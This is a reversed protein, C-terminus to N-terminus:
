GRRLKKVEELRENEAAELTRKTCIALCKGNELFRSVYESINHEPVNTHYFFGKFAGRVFARNLRDKNTTKNEILLRLITNHYTEDRYDHLQLFSIEELILNNKLHNLLTNRKFRGLDFNMQIKKLKSKPNNAIAQFLHAFAHKKIKYDLLLEKISTNAILGQAIFRVQDLQIPGSLILTKVTTKAIFEALFNNIHNNYHIYLMNFSKNKILINMLYDKDAPKLNQDFICDRIHDFTNFFEEMNFHKKLEREDKKFQLVKIIWALAEQYASMANQRALDAEISNKSNKYEIEQQLKLIYQEKYYNAFFIAENVDQNKEALRERECFSLISHLANRYFQIKEDSLFENEKLYSLAEDFALKGIIILESPLEDQIEILINLIQIFNENNNYDKTLFIQISSSRYDNEKMFFISHDDSNNIISLKSECAQKVNIEPNAFRLEFEITKYNNKHLLFQIYIRNNDKRELM